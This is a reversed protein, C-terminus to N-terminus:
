LHHRCLDDLERASGVGDITAFLWLALLLRPDTADRGPEGPVAKIQRLLPTIDVGCVYDWVVRVMHDAPLLQEWSAVRMQGQEREPRRLRPTLDAPQTAVIPASQPEGLEFLMGAPAADHDPLDHMTNM